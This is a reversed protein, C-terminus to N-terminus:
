EEDLVIEPYEIAEVGGHTIEVVLPESDEEICISFGTIVGNVFAIKVNYYEDGFNDVITDAEYQGTSANFTFEDFLDLVAGVWSDYTLTDYQEQDIESWREELSAFKYYEYYKDGIKVDIYVEDYGAIYEKEGNDLLIFPKNEWKKVEGDFTIIIERGDPSVASAIASSDASYFDTWKICYNSSKSFAIASNWEEVNAITRVVDMDAGCNDCKADYNADAHDATATREEGCNNCTTDCDYDYAHTCPTTTNGGGNGDNNDPTEPNCAVLCVTLMLIVVFIAIFKKM